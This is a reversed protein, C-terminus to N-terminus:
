VICMFYRLKDHQEQEADLSYLSDNGMSKTCFVKTLKELKQEVFIPLSM